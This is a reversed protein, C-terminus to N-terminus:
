ACASRTPSLGILGRQVLTNRTRAFHENASLNEYPNHHLFKYFDHLLFLEVLSELLDISGGPMKVTLANFNATGRKQYGSHLFYKRIKGPPKYKCDVLLFALTRAIDFMPHGCATKEFDLIGTITPRDLNGVFLINGRVFDMHLAQQDPLHKCAQLTAICHELEPPTLQLKKALATRVGSDAFYSQMRAFIKLYVAAVDPLNHTELESLAAHMDSMTKGLLKLHAMTYAEWPITRGPLYTYLAAFKQWSGVRVRMLRPEVTQRTPFAHEALFDSARNANQITQIIGTESKYLILNLLRGDIARFPHTENRYGKETPLLEGTNFGFRRLVERVITQDAAM